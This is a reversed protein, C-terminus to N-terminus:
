VVNKQFMNQIFYLSVEIAKRLKGYLYPEIYKAIAISVLIMATLTLSLLLYKNWYQGLSNFIMYGIYQHILYLPYTATGFLIFVKPLTIKIKRITILYFVLYFSIILCSTILISFNTEFVIEIQIIHDVQLYISYFLTSLIVLYKYLNWGKIKASYFIIGAVLYSVYEHILFSAIKSLGLLNVLIALFFWIGAFYEEFSTLKFLILLAVLFNFKLILTMYWWAGDIYPIDMFDNLMTLNALFQVWTINFRDGGILLTFISTLIIAIWFVPYLRIIRSIVFDKFRKQTASTITLYGTIIIFLYLLPYFFKAVEGLGPFSLTTYNDVAFGRFTYHFLVIGLIAVIRLADLEYLRDKTKNM